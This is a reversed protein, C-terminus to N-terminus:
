RRPGVRKISQYLAEDFETMREPGLESARLVATAVDQRLAAVDVGRCHEPWPALWKKCREFMKAMGIFNGREIQLYTVGAQLIGKYLHRAPGPEAIWAAELAEHAHWFHRADFLEIGKIAMPHLEGECATQLEEAKVFIENPDRVAM